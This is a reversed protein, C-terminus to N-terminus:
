PALDKLIPTSSFLQFGPPPSSALNQDYEITIGSRDAADLGTATIPAVERLDVDNAVISGNLKVTGRGSKRVRFTDLPVFFAVSNLSIDGINDTDWLAAAGSGGDNSRLVIFGLPGPNASADKKINVNGITLKKDVIITGGSYNTIDVVNGSNKGIILDGNKIHIVFDNKRASSTTAPLLSPSSLDLSWPASKRMEVQFNGGSTDCKTIMTATTRLAECNTSDIVLDPSRKLRNINANQYVNKYVSNIDWGNVAKSDIGYNINERSLSTGGVLSGAAHEGPLLLRGADLGGGSYVNGVITSPPLTMFYARAAGLEKGSTSDSVIAQTAYLCAGGRSRQPIFSLTIGCQNATTDTTILEDPNPQLVFVPPTTIKKADSGDTNAVDVTVGPVLVGLDLATDSKGFLASSLNNQSFQPIYLLYGVDALTEASGTEDVFVPYGVLRSKYTPFIISRPQGTYQVCYQQGKDLPSTASGITFKRWNQGTAIPADKLGGACDGQDNLGGSRLVVSSLNGWTQGAETFVDRITIASSVTDGPISIVLNVQVTDVVGEKSIKVTVVQQGGGLTINRMTKSVVIPRKAAHVTSASWLSLAGFALMLISCVSLLKNIM